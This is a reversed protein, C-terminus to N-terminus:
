YDWNEIPGVHKKYWTKVAGRNVEWMWATIVKNKSDKTSTFKVKGLKNDIIFKSLTHGHPTNAFIIFAGDVDDEIFGKSVSTIVSQMSGTINNLTRVGCCGTTNLHNM